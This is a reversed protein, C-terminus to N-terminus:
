EDDVDEPADQQRRWDIWALVSEREWLVVKPSFRIPQPFVGSQHLRTIQSSSVGVLRACDSTTILGNNQM